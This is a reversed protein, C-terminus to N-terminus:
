IFSNSIKYQVQLLSMDKLIQTNTNDIKLANMYCKVAEGYNRMNRNVIGYIHWCIESKLNKMLATKTLKFGEDHKETLYLLLGKM